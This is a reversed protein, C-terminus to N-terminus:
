PAEYLVVQTREFEAQMFTNRVAEREIIDVQRGTLRELDEVLALYRYGLGELDPGFEVLLDVDRPVVAPDPQTSSGVLAAWEVGHRRCVSVIGPVLPTIAPNLGVAEPTYAIADKRAISGPGVGGPMFADLAAAILGSRTYRESRAFADARALVDDPLTINLRKTMSQIIANSTYSHTDTHLPAICMLQTTMVDNTIYVGAM